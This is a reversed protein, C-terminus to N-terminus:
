VPASSPEGPASRASWPGIVLARHEARTAVEIRATECVFVAVVPTGGMRKLEEAPAQHEGLFQDVPILETRFMFPAKSWVLVDRVWRGSGRKWKPGLSGVDGSSLRIAGTFEGPQRKLWRRRGFVLAAVGVIVILDVGLAVLLAILV